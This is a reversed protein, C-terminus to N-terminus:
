RENRKQENRGEAYLKERYCAEVANMCNYRYKREEEMLKEFRSESLRLSEAWKEEGRMQMDQMQMWMIIVAILFITGIGIKGFVLELVKELLNNNMRAGQMALFMFLAILFLIHFNRPFKGADKGAKSKVKASILLSTKFSPLHTSANLGPVNTSKEPIGLVKEGSSM